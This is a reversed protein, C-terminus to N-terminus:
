NKQHQASRLGLAKLVNTSSKSTIPRHHRDDNLRHSFPSIMHLSAYQIRSVIESPVNMIICEVIAQINKNCLVIDSNDNRFDVHHVFVSASIRELSHGADGISSGDM